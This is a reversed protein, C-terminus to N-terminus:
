SCVFGSGIKFTRANEESGYCWTKKKKLEKM